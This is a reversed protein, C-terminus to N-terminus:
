PWKNGDVLLSEIQSDGHKNVKVNVKVDDATEIIKGTDVQVANKNEWQLEKRGKADQKRICCPETKQYLTGGWVFYNGSIINGARMTEFESYDIKTSM